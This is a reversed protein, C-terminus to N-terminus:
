SPTQPSRRPIKPLGTDPDTNPPRIIHTHNAMHVIPYPLPPAEGKVSRYIVEWFHALFLKVAYRRARAHIHGPPLLGQSYHKYAETSKNWNFDKLKQAAAEKYLGKENREQYIGKQAEYVKGYVDDPHSKLKIFSDGIKFCLVRFDANFPRRQGKKWEMTPNLGAYSWLHGATPLYELETYAILGATLVPGIGVISLPWPSWPHKDVYRTLAAATQKELTYAQNKLWTIVRPKELLAVEQVAKLTQMFTPDHLEEATVKPKRGLYTQLYIQKFTRITDADKIPDMQLGEILFQTAQDYLLSREQGQSIIRFEQMSYYGQILYTSEARGLTEAAERLDSNLRVVAQQYEEPDNDAQDDQSFRDAATRGRSRSM